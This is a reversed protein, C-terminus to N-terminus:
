RVVVTTITLPCLNSDWQLCGSEFRSVVEFSTVATTKQGFWKPSVASVRKVWKFDVERSRNKLFVAPFDLFNQFFWQNNSLIRIKRFKVLFHLNESLNRIKRVEKKLFGLRCTSKLHPSLSERTEGMLNPCFNVATSLKSIVDSSSDPDFRFCFWQLKCLPFFPLDRLRYVLQISTNCQLAQSKCLLRHFYGKLLFGPQGTLYRVNSVKGLPIPSWPNLCKM